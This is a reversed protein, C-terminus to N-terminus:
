QRGSDNSFLKRKRRALEEEPAVFGMPQLSLVNAAQIAGHESFALPLAKSFKLSAFRDCNTVVERKPFTRSSSPMAASSHPAPTDPAGESKIEM